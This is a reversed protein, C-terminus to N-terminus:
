LKTNSRQTLSPAAGPSRTGNSFYAAAACLRVRGAEAARASCFPAGLISRASLSTCDDGPLLGSCDAISALDGQNIRPDLGVALLRRGGSAADDPRDRARRIQAVTVSDGGAPPAHNPARLVRRFAPQNPANSAAAFASTIGPLAPTIAMGRRRPPRQTNTHRSRLVESEKLRFLGSDGLFAASAAPKAKGVM